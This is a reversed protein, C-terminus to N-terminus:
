RIQRKNKLKYGTTIDINETSDDYQQVDENNWVPPEEHTPWDTKNNWHNGAWYSFTYM